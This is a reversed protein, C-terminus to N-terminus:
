YSSSFFDVSIGNTTTLSGPFPWNKGWKTLFCLHPSTYTSCVDM